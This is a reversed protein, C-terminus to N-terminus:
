YCLHQRPLYNRITALTKTDLAETTNLSQLPDSEGRRGNPSLMEKPKSIQKQREKPPRPDPPPEAQAFLCCEGQLANFISHQQSTRKFKLILATEHM